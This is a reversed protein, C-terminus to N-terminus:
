SGAAYLICHSRWQPGLWMGLSRHEAPGLLSHRTDAYGTRGMWSFPCHQLATHLQQQVRVLSSQKQLM